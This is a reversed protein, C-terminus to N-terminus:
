KSSAVPFSSFLQSKAASLPFLYPKLTATVIVGGVNVAGFSM